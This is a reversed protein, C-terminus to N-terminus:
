TFAVESFYLFCKWIYVYMVSYNGLTAEVYKGIQLFLWDMVPNLMPPCPAKITAKFVPFYRDTEANAGILLGETM